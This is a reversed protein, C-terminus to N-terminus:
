RLYSLYGELKERDVYLGMCIEFPSKKYLDRLAMSINCNNKRYYIYAIYFSFLDMFTKNEGYLESSISHIRNLWSSSVYPSNIAEMFFRSCTDHDIGSNKIRAMVLSEFKKGATFNEYYDFATETLIPFSSVIPQFMFNSLLSIKKKERSLIGSLKGIRKSNGHKKYYIIYSYEYVALVSLSYMDENYDIKKGFKDTNNLISRIMHTYFFGPMVYRRIGTMFTIFHSADAGMKIITSKKPKHTNTGSTPDRRDSIFFM